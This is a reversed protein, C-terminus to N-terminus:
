MFLTQLFCSIQQQVAPLNDVHLWHGSEIEVLTACLFQTKIQSLDEPLLYDSRSSKLFLTPVSVKEEFASLLQPLHQMLVDLNPKWYLNGSIGGLNKAVLQQIGEPMTCFQAMVESRSLGSLSCAVMQRLLTHTETSTYSRVGMDIVVLGTLNEGYCAAYHMVIRGGLSHGILIPCQLRHTHIFEDIDSVLDPMTFSDAHFSHGHNRIDPIYVVHNRSLIKALPLMFEGMGLLGHLLVVPTGKEGVKRYFLESM